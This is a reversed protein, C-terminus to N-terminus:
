HPFQNWFVRPDPFHHNKILVKLTISISGDWGLIEFIAGDIQNLLNLGENRITGYQICVKDVLLKVSDNAKWRGWPDGLLHGVEREDSFSITLDRIRLLQHLAHKHLRYFNAKKIIKQNEKSNREPEIMAILGKTDKLKLAKSLKSYAEFYFKASAAFFPNDAYKLSNERAKTVLRVLSIVDHPSLKSNLELEVYESNWQLANRQIASM